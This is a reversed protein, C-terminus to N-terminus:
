SSFHRWNLKRVSDDYFNCGKGKGGKHMGERALASFLNDGERREKWERSFNEKSRM